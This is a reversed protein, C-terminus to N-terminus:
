CLVRERLNRSRENFKVENKNTNQPLQKVDFESLFAQSYTGNRGSQNAQNLSATATQHRKALENVQPAYKQRGQKIKQQNKLQEIEYKRTALDLENLSRHAAINAKLGKITADVDVMENLPKPQYNRHPLFDIESNCYSNKPNRSNLDDLFLQRYDQHRVLVELRERELQERGAKLEAQVDALDALYQQYAHNIERRAAVERPPCSFCIEYNRVPKNTPTGHPHYEDFIDESEHYMYVSLGSTQAAKIDDDSLFPEHHELHRHWIAIAAEDGWKFEFRDRQNKAINPLQKVTGDKLIIGGIELQNKQRKCISKIADIQRPTLTTEYSNQSPSHHNHRCTCTCKDGQPNTYRYSKPM